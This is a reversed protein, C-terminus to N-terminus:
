ILANDNQHHTINNRFVVNGKFIELKPYEPYARIFYGSCHDFFFDGNELFNVKYKMIIGKEFDTL